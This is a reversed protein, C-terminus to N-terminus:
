EKLKAFKKDILNQALQVSVTYEKGDEMYGSKNTAIIKVMGPLTSIKINPSNEIVEKSTLKKAM